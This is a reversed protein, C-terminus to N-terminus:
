ELEPLFVCDEPRMLTLETTTEPGRRMTVSSLYWPGFLGFEEDQVDVVTNPTWVARVGAAGLAPVSHGSVVYRLSVNERNAEAILSRARRDCELPSKLETDQVVLIKRFRGEHPDSPLLRESMETDVYEGSMQARGGKLTGRTYVRAMTWRRASNNRYTASIINVGGAENRKGRKHVIRYVPKQHPNPVSIVIASQTDAWIFLGVRRLQESYFEFWRTGVRAKVAADQQKTVTKTIKNGKADIVTETKDVLINKKTDLEKVNVVEVGAHAKQNATDDTVIATDTLGVTDLITRLIEEYSKSNGFSTDAPVYHDHLKKVIDRGDFQLTSGGSTVNAQVGDTFGRMLPVLSAGGVDLGIYFPTEPPVEKIWQALTERQGVTFTFAGPQEFVSQTIEYSLAVDLTKSGVTQKGGNPDDEQHEGLTLVVTDDWAQRTV